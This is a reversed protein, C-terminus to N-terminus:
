APESLLVLASVGSAACVREVRGGPDRHFIAAGDAYAVSGDSSLDYCSVGQAVTEPAGGSRQRTLRHSRPVSGPAEGSAEGETQAHVLNAWELMRRLDGARHRPGGATTLPKGTYRASFFNLYQFLAYLLRM